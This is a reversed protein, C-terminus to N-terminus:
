DKLAYINGIGIEGNELEYKVLIRNYEKGEFEDIFQWYKDLENSFLIFAEIVEQEKINTHKFGGYGLDAGWGKNELKGKIIGKKWCGAIHKIKSHNPRDPALSGYIILAKEPRYKEIINNEEDTLRSTGTGKFQLYNKQNLTKIIKDLNMKSTKVNLKAKAREKISEEKINKELLQLDQFLVNEDGILEEIVSQITDWIKEFKPLDSKAKKSLSLLKKRSDIGDVVSFLYGREKMKKVMKIVAPHSFQLRSAIETVSLSEEKKLLLFILHWNPEIELDLSKYLDRTSYLLADSIRKLRASFGSYGLETLFDNKM